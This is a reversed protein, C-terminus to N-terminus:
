KAKELSRYVFFQHTMSILNNVLMYLVLGSPFFLFMGTFVIPMMQFIRQQMPDAQPPNLKQQVWMSAGMLLPMVFYPDQVSLDVIWGIFPAQRL